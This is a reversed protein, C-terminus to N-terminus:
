RVRDLVSCPSFYDNACHRGFHVFHATPNAVGGGTNWRISQVLDKLLELGIRFLFASQAETKSNHFLDHFCMTALNTDFAFDITTRCESEGQRTSTSPLVFKLDKGDFGT